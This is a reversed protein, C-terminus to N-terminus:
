PLDILDLCHSIDIKLYNSNKFVFLLPMNISIDVYKEFTKVQILEDNLFIKTEKDTVGAIDYVRKSMLEKIENTLGDMHFRKFDPYWTIKTYPKSKSTTIIPETKDQM